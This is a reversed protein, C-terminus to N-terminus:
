DHDPEKKYVEIGEETNALKRLERFVEEGTAVYLLELRELHNRNLHIPMSLGVLACLAREVRCEFHNVCPLPHSEPEPLRWYLWHNYSM